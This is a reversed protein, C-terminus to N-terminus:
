SVPLCQQRGKIGSKSYGPKCLCLNPATCYGNPCGQPCHPRCINPSFEDQIYGNNCSCVNSGSCYGNLCPQDCHAICNHGTSDLTWGPHCGCVDPEACFGNKCENRCIAECKDGRREYGQLCRCVGPEICRGNKCNDCKAECFTGQANVEYGKACECTEPATCNGNHCGKTCHPACFKKSVDLVYGSKCLCTSDPQCEGNGCGIPCTSLCFGAYNRVHDPYCVCVDPAVCIGNICGNKCIPDCQLYNHVNREYGDCCIQIRSLSPDSGNGVPRMSPDRVLSATPVETFCVGSSMKSRTENLFKATKDMPLQPYIHMPPYNQNYYDSGSGDNNLHQYISHNHTESQNHVLNLSHIPKTKIGIQGFIGLPCLLLIGIFYLNM